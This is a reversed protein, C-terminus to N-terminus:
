TVLGSPSAKVQQAWPKPRLHGEWAGSLPVIPVPLSQPYPRTPTPSTVPLTGKCPINCLCGGRERREWERCGQWCSEEVVCEKGRKWTGCTSLVTSQVWPWFATKSRSAMQGVCKTHTTHLQCKLVTTDLSHSVKRWPSM